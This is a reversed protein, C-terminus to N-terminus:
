TEDGTLFGVLPHADLLKRAEERTSGVAMVGPQCLNSPHRPDTAGDGSHPRFAVAFRRPSETQVEYVRTFGGLERRALYM